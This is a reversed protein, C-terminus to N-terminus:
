EDENDEFSIIYKKINNKNKKRLITKYSFNDFKDLSGNAKLEEYDAKELKLKEIIEKKKKQIDEDNSKELFMSSSALKMNIIKNYSKKPFFSSSAPIYKGEPFNNLILSKDTTLYSASKDCVNQLYSPLPSGKKNPRSIMNKFKPVKPSQHNNYKEIIKDPDYELGSIIGQFPKQKFNKTPKNKKYVAMMLSREKVYTYNPVIFPINEIKYKKIKKERSQCLAFNPAKNQSRINNTDEEQMSDLYLLKNKQDKNIIKSELFFNKKTKSLLNNKIEPSNDMNFSISGDININLSKKKDDLLNKNRTKAQTADSSINPYYFNNSYTKFQEKAFIDKNKINANKVTTKNRNKIRFNNKQMIKKNKKLNDMNVFCKVFGSNIVYKDYTELNNIIFDRNDIEQNKYKRGLRDGWKIGTIIKPWIYNYNPSYRTCGPEYTTIKKQKNESTCHRNHFFLSFKKLPKKDKNKEEEEEEGDEEEKNYKNRIAKKLTDSDYSYVKYINLKEELNNHKIEDPSFIDPIKVRKHEGKLIENKHIINNFKEASRKGALSYSGYWGKEENELM